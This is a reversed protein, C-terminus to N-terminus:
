GIHSGGPLRSVDVSAAGSVAHRGGAKRRAGDRGDGAGWFLVRVAAKFPPAGGAQAGIVRPFILLLLSM